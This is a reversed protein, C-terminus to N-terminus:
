RGDILKGVLQRLEAVEDRLAALEQDKEEQRLKQLRKARLADHNTNVIAGSPARRLDPHGKVKM